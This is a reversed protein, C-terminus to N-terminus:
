ALFMNRPQSFFLPGFTGVQDLELIFAKAGSASLLSKTQTCYPCYSKSFVVVPNNQILELVQSEVNSM